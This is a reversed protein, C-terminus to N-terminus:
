HFGDINPPLNPSPIRNFLLNGNGRQLLMSLKEFLHKTVLGVDRGSNHAQLRTLDRIHSAADDDWGGFTTVALPLGLNKSRYFPQIM